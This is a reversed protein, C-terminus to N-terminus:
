WHLIQLGHFITTMAPTRNGLEHTAACDLKAPDDGLEAWTSRMRSSNLAKDDHRSGFLPAATDNIRQGQFKAVM